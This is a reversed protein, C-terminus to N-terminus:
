REEFNFIAGLTYLQWGPGALCIFFIIAKINRNDTLSEMGIFGEVREILLEM